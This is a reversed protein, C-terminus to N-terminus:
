PRPLQGAKLFTLTEARYRRATNIYGHASCAWVVERAPTVEVLLQQQSVVMLTNGNPLRQCSGATNTVYVQGDAAPYFWPFGNTRPDYELVRASHPSGFNDFLLLHGNDLFQADHQGQWPGQDAWVISGSAPDLVALAHVNRISLLLQGAKFMPFRPALARGLVKISNTHLLNVQQAKTFLKRVPMEDPISQERSKELSGLIPSFPSRRLADFVSIPKNLEKGDPSLMVVYDLLWPAPRGVLEKPPNSVPIQVLTYITGDEGVDVDHHVRAAYKWLINSDRDLMALGYGIPYLEMSHFVVLLNGNAYLHCAFICVESDRVQQGGLHPPNHWVDSFSVAWRHVVDRQMNVLFVQTSPVSYSSCTFLTFGDSTKGPKDVLGILDSGEDDEAAISMDRRQAWARAGVFGKSLFGSTPLQFFMAAAGLLYCLTALGFVSILTFFVNRRHRATPSPKPNPTKEEEERNSAPTSDPGNEM